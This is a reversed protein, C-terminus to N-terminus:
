DTLMASLLYKAREEDFPKQTRIMNLAKNYRRLSEGSLVPTSSAVAQMEPLSDQCYLAIDCGASIASLARESMDGALAKMSLDDSILLGEFGIEERVISRIIKGSTTVPQVADLEQLLIHATMAAPMKGLAKFPVFDTQRLTDLDTDIVPLNKHSDVEARGHGPIHKIVPLVAGDLFGKAVTGALATVINSNEGYARDGIVDHAGPVPIDLVPACNVNIGMNRLDAALLRAVAYAAELGKEANQRYLAGFVKASPQARWQPPRLRRVRGGEQDIAILVDNCGIVSRFDECLEKLQRPSECNRAFLILGCPRAERIFDREDPLLQYGACGTIFARLQM